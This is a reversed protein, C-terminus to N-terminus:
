DNLSRKVFNPIDEEDAKTIMDKVAEPTIDGSDVHLQKTTVEQKEAIEIAAKLGKHGKPIETIATAIYMLDEFSTTNLEAVGNEYVIFVARM